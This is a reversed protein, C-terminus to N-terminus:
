DIRIIIWFLKFVKVDPVKALNNTLYNAFIEKTFIYM